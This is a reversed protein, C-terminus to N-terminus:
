DELQAQGHMILPTDYLLAEEFILHNVVAAVCYTVCNFSAISLRIAKFFFSAAFFSTCIVARLFCRLWQALSVPLPM